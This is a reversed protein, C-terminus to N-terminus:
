GRIEKWLSEYQQAAAQTLPLLFESDKIIEAPPLLVQNKQLAVPIQPPKTSALIPSAAQTLRSLQVAIEPQWCFDIWKQLLDVNSNASAPRVWLDTWFATGSKPVVATIQSYRQMVPLIDTSWGVALWTDGLILSQVYANSSYFKVQQDLTRLKEKLQPVKDLNQSNYSKGLTKLTLGITERPQDLVSIRDRLEERWLDSWDTPTWGLSKFKDRRYAIVTSGWRYPAGWIKGKPDLQGQDNRRVLAQWQPPLQQWAKLQSPNLPQILKQEIAEALWYDGLTVLDARSAQEQSFPLPLQSRWDNGTPKQQWSKLQTFLNLLQAEAAFDLVAPKNLSKRFENLLQAPISDKLVKVTLSERQQRNCGVLLGSLTIAGTGALFSRRKM